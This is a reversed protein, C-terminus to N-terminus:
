KGVVVSKRIGDMWAQYQGNQMDRLIDGRADQLPRVELKDLRILFVGNPRAFPQSVQGPKLQFVADKIEAPINDSKKFSKFNGDVPYEKAMADFDGGSQLKKSLAEAKAKATVLESENKVPVQAVTIYATTFSDKHGEYYKEVEANSITNGKGHEAMEALTLVWKRGLELQEKYPSQEALKDKEALESMRMVFGYFRLLEQPDASLPGQQEKPVLNLLTELQAQTVPKGDVTGRVMDQASLSCVALAGAVVFNRM